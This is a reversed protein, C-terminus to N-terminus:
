KMGTAPSSILKALILREYQPRIAEMTCKQEFFMRAKRGIAKREDPQIALNAITAAFGELHDHLLCANELGDTLSSIISARTAVVVQEHKLLLPLKTRYGTDHEYPLISIDFPRLVQSLDPVFGCVIANAEQLLHALPEKIRTADGIVWLQPYKGKQRCATVVARHAKQLYATLGVRNATTELSGIHVIRVDEAPCSTESSPMGKDYAMGLVAVRKCGMVRLREGDTASGTVIQPAARAVSIEARRCMKLSWRASYSLHAARIRRVRHLIDLHSYTWGVAPCLLSSAAAPLADEIWLIDPSQAELKQRLQQALVSAAPFESHLPDILSTILRQWRGQKHGSLVCDIEQWSTASKQASQAEDTVEESHRIPLAEDSHVRLVHIESCLQRLAHFNQAYRSAAGSYNATLPADPYVFVLRTM